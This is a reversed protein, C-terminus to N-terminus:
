MKDAIKQPITLIRAFEAPYVIRKEEKIHVSKGFFPLFGTGFPVCSFCLEAAATVKGKKIKMDISKMRLLILSREMEKKINEKGRNEQNEYDESFISLLRENVSAYEFFSSDKEYPHVPLNVFEEINKNLVSHVTNIDYLYFSVTMVAFIIGIVLPVVYSAEVTMSGESFMKKLKKIKESYEM